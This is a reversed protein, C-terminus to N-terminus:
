PTWGLWHSIAELMPIVVRHIFDSHFLWGLPAVVVAATWVWGAASGGQRLLAGCRGRELLVGAGQLLFYLTPRGYGGGAPLSIVADHVLGSALFVALTAGAIGIRKQLRRFVFAHALDRFALNWRRGWFESLSTARLPADMIPRANIGATQWGVSLLHFIGFHLVLGLGVLAVWGAAWPHREVGGAAWLVLGMGALTKGAPALWATWTPRPQCRAAALFAAADMGPWFLLYALTRSLTASAAASCAAFSLWKLAAYVAVALAWMRVWAPCPGSLWWVALPLVALPLWGVAATRPSVPRHEAVAAM